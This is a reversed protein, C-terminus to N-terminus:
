EQYIYENYIEVLLVINTACLNLAYRVIKDTVEVEIVGDGHSHKNRVTPLGSELTNSLGSFHTQLYSPIFEKNMLTSILKKANDSQKYSYNLEGCIIKMTSEFAKGANTIAGKLNGNKYDNFAQMYENSASEFENEYLLQIANVTVEQHIFKSDIRILNGSIYEYGLSNERFKKNVESILYNFHKVFGGSDESSEAVEYQVLEELTALVTEFCYLAGVNNCMKLVKIVQYKNSIGNTNMEGFEINLIKTVPTWLDYKSYPACESVLLIFQNRLKESVIEYQFVENHERFGMRQEFEYLSGM